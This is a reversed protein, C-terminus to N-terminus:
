DVLGEVNKSIKKIILYVPIGLGYIWVTQSVLIQFFTYWYATEYGMLVFMAPLFIANLLIPPLGALFVNKIKRTLYGAILTITAGIIADFVSSTLLNVIFCGLALGYISPAMLVPMLCLGEGPRIQFFPASALSGLPLTLAVYLAAVLGSKAIFKTSKM